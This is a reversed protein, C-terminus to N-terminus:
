YDTKELTTVELSAMRASITKKVQLKRINGVSDIVAKLPLKM